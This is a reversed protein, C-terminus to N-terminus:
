KMSINSNVFKPWMVVGVIYNSDRSLVKNSVGHIYIIVGYSKKWFIKIKLLLLELTALKASMMLIAVMNILFVWFLTLPILFQTNFHLGYKYKQIYCFNSIEPSFTSIDTSSLSKDRSERILNLYPIATGLKMVTPCTHCTKPLPDKQRQM